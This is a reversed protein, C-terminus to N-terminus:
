RRRQRQRVSKVYAEADERTKLAEIRANRERNLQRIRRVSSEHLYNGLISRQNNM